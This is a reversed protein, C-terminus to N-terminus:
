FNGQSIDNFRGREVCWLAYFHMFAAESPEVENAKVHEAYAKFGNEQQLTVTKEEIDALLAETKEEIKALLAAKIQNFYEDESLGWTKMDTEDAESNLAVELEELTNMDFCAESFPSMDGEKRAGAIKIDTQVLNGNEHFLWAYNDGERKFLKRGSPATGVESLEVELLDMLKLM